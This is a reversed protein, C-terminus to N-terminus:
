TPAEQDCLDAFARALAQSDCLNGAVSTRGDAHRLSLMGRQEEPLAELCLQLASARVRAPTEAEVEAATDAMLAVLEPDLPTMRGVKRRHELILRRSIERIWPLFGERNRLKAAARVAM